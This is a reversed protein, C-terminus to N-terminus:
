VTRRRGDAVILFLGGAIAVVGVIPSIPVTKHHDVEAEIPGVDLVKERKTYSFGQYVVALVGLIILIVGLPKM